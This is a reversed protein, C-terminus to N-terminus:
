LEESKNSSLIDGIRREAEVKSPIIQYLLDKVYTAVMIVVYGQWEKNKHSDVYNCINYIVLCPFHNILGTAEMEFCLM